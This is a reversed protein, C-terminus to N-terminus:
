DNYDPSVKALECNESCYEHRQGEPNINGCEPCKECCCENAYESCGQCMGYIDRKALEANAPTMVWGKLTPNWRAGNSKLVEKVPKTNGSVLISKKYTEFTIDEAKEGNDRLAEVERRLTDLTALISDIKSNDM